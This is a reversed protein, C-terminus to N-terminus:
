KQKTQDEDQWLQAQGAPPPAKEKKEPKPKTKTTVPLKKEVKPGNGKLFNQPSAVPTGVKKEIERRYKGALKGAEGVDKELSNYGQTDRSRHLATATAEGLTTLALELHTEHDRLNERNLGKLTKHEAVTLGFTNKNIVSTLRAYEEATTAGRENWEDTLENRVVANHIRANIWAEDRGQIRYAERMREIALEPNENEAVREQGVQALWQKFPEALPSPISQIIRLLTRGDVMDTERVKGDAAPIKLQVIKEYVEVEGAEERLRAKLDSWYRRPISSSTLAAVVDVVAFYWEEEHWVRRVQKHEFLALTHDEAATEETRATIAQVKRAQTNQAPKLKQFEDKNIAMPFYAMAAAVEPKRADCNQAVLYCAYRSLLYDDVSQRAGKDSILVKTTGAFHDEVVQELKECEVKAKNIALEFNRWQRYGLLPALDRASWFEIGFSNHKKILDFDPSKFTLPQSDM